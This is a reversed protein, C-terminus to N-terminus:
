AILDLIVTLLRYSNALYGDCVLHEGRHNCLRRRQDKKDDSFGLCGKQPSNPDVQLAKNWTCLFLTARINWLLHEDLAYNGAPRQLDGNDSFGPPPSLRIATM